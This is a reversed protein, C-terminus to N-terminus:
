LKIFENELQEICKKYDPNSNTLEKEIALLAQENYSVGTKAIRRKLKALERMCKDPAACFRLYLDLRETRKGAKIMSRTQEDDMQDDVCGFFALIDDMVRQMEVLPANGMSAKKLESLALEIYSMTQTGIEDRLVIANDFARNLNSAISDTVTEDFPYRHIFDETGTYIDPINLQSCIEGYCEEEADILYDFSIFFQKVTTYVRESYRGLWYLESAKELTVIGM